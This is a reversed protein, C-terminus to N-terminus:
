STEFYYIARRANEGVVGAGSGHTMRRAVPVVRRLDGNGVEYMQCLGRSFVARTPLPPRLTLFAWTWLTLVSFFFSSKTMGGRAKTAQCIKKATM